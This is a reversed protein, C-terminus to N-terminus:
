SMDSKRQMTYRSRMSHYKAMPEVGSHQSKKVEKVRQKTFAYCLPLDKGEMPNRTLVKSAYTAWTVLITYARSDEKTGGHSQM